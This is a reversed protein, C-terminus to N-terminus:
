VSSLLKLDTILNDLQVDLSCDILRNESEIFCQNKGLQADVVIQIKRNIIGEIYEKNDSLTNFDESSVRITFDEGSDDNELAKRVLYLIIETKDEALIGTLKTILSMLLEAVHGEIGGLLQKYEKQQIEQQKLLNDKMHQIEARGTNLGEEYGLKKGRERADDEIRQAEKKAAEIIAAAEKKAKEIIEDARKMQEEDSGIPDVVVASIGEEFGENSQLLSLKSKRKTQLEEDRDKYDITMKAKPEYRITYSKIINSM